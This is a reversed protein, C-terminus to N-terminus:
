TGRPMAHSTAGGAPTMPVQGARVSNPPAGVRPSRKEVRKPLLRQALLRLALPLAPSDPPVEDPPPHKRLLSFEADCFDCHALHLMLREPFPEPRPDGACALLEGSTPCDARKRFLGGHSDAHVFPM